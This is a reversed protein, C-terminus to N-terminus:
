RGGLGGPEAAPRGSGRGRDASRPQPRYQADALVSQGQEDVFRTFLQQSYGFVVAWSLIQASSDLATLGPVFGASIMLLGLFATLAGTPVKLLALAVSISYPDASGQVKRLSFVASVAAGLVGSFEILLLDAPRPSGSAPCITADSGPNSYCLPLTDPAFIGVVALLLALTSALLTAIMVVNRFSRLRFQNRLSAKKAAEIAAVVTTREQETFGDRASERALETLRVLRPDDDPLLDKADSVLTQLNSALYDLPALRLLNIEAANLSAEASQM